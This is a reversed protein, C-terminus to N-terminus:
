NWYHDLLMIPWSTHMILRTLRESNSPAVRNGEVADFLPCPSPWHGFM